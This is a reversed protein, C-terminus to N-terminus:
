RWHGEEFHWRDGRQEWRHAVWEHGRRERIWHGKVWLHRRGDWHHYGPAWVYGARPEPVVEVVAPPPAVNIDVAVRAAQGAVPILTAGIALLTAVVGRRIHM